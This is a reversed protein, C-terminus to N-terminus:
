NTHRPFTELRDRPEMPALCGTRSREVGAAAWANRTPQWSLTARRALGCSQWARSPGWFSLPSGCAAGQIAGYAPNRHDVERRPGLRPRRLLGVLLLHRIIHAVMRECLM